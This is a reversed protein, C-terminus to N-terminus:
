EKEQHSNLFCKITYLWLHLYSIYELEQISIWDKISQINVEFNFKWHSDIKFFYNSKYDLTFQDYDWKMLLELLSNMSIYIIELEPYKSNTYWKKLLTSIDELNYTYM